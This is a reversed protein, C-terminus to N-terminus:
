LLEGGTKAMRLASRIVMTDTTRIDQAALWAALERILKRDEEHLWFQVPKGVRSRSAPAPDPRRVAKRYQQQEAVAEAKASDAEPTSAPASPADRKIAALLRTVNSHKSTRSM